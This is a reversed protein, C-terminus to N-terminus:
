KKPGSREGAARAAREKIASVESAHETGERLDRIKRCLKVTRDDGLLSGRENRVSMYLLNLSDDNRKELYHEAVRDHDFHQAIVDMGERRLEEQRELVRGESDYDGKRFNKSAIKAIRGIDNEYLSELTGVLENAEPSHQDEIGRAKERLDSLDRSHMEGLKHVVESLKRVDQTQTSYLYLKQKIAKRENFDAQVFKHSPLSLLFEGDRVFPHALWLRPKTALFKFVSFRSPLM